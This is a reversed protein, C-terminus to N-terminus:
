QSVSDLNYLFSPRRQLAYRLVLLLLHLSDEQEKSGVSKVYGIHGADERNADTKKLGVVTPIELVTGNGSSIISPFVIVGVFDIMWIREEKGGCSLHAMPFNICFSSEEGIASAIILLVAYATLSPDKLFLLPVEAEIRM